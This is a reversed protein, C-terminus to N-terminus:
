PRTTVPSAPQSAFPLAQDFDPLYRSQSALDQVFANRLGLDLAFDVIEEYELASLSRDLGATLHARHRPAYQSMISLHNEPSLEALFRLCRKSNELQGPLVLHRVLLGGIAIGFRDRRLLGVQAFMESIARSAVEAYDPASSLGKGLKEDMYKLDPLYVDILGAIQRLVAVSDYGGSNYVIPIELGRIKATEIADALMLAQHSPSVLNVNHAGLAQLELMRDALESTSFVPHALNDQSIQHNQCFVCLMNCGALFITGSGRSGSIPPEEGFHLGSYAVRLEAPLRCVGTEGAM